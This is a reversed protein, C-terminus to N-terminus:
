CNKWRCAKGASRTALNCKKGAIVVYYNQFNCESQSHFIANRTAAAKTMPHMGDSKSCLSDLTYITNTLIEMGIQFFM